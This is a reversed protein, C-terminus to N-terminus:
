HLTELRARAASDGHLSWGTWSSARRCRTTFRPQISRSVCVKIAGLHWKDGEEEERPWPCVWLAQGRVSVRKVAQQASGFIVFWFGGVLSQLPLKGAATQLSSPNEARHLCCHLQWATVPGCVPVPWRQRPWDPHWPSPGLLVECATYCWIGASILSFYCETLCM